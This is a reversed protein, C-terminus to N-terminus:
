RGTVAGGPVGGSRVSSEMSDKFGIKPHRGIWRRSDQQRLSGHTDHLDPQRVLNQLDDVALNRCATHGAHVLEKRLGGTVIGRVEIELVFQRGLFAPM